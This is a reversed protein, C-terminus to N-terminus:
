LQYHKRQRKLYHLVMENQHELEVFIGRQLPHNLYPMRRIYVSQGPEIATERYAYITTGEVVADRITRLPVPSRPCLWGLAPSYFGPMSVGSLRWPRPIDEVGRHTSFFTQFLWRTLEAQIADSTLNHELRQQIVRPFETAIKDIVPLSKWRRSPLQIVDTCLYRAAQLLDAFTDDPLSSPLILQKPIGHLPWMQPVSYARPHWIADLLAIGYETATPKGESIWGGMPLGSPLDVVVCAYWSGNLTRPVNIRQSVIVWESHILPATIFLTSRQRVLSISESQGAHWYAKKKLRRMIVTFVQQTLPSIGFYNCQQNALQRARSWSLVGDPHGVKLLHLYEIIREDICQLWVGQKLLGFPGYAIFNRIRDRAAALSLGTLQVFHDVFKDQITPPRPESSCVREPAKPLLDRRRRYKRMRIKNIASHGFKFRRDCRRRFLNGLRDEILRVIPFSYGSKESAIRLQDVLGAIEEQADSHLGALQRKLTDRIAAQVSAIRIHVDQLVEVVGHLGNISLQEALAMSQSLSLDLFQAVSAAISQKHLDEFTTLFRLREQGSPPEKLLFQRWCGAQTFAMYLAMLTKLLRPRLVAVTQKPLVDLAQQKHLWRLAILFEDLCPFSSHKLLSLPGITLYSVVLSRAIRASREPMDSLTRVVTAVTRSDRCVGSKQLQETLIAQTSSQTLILNLKGWVSDWEPRRFRRTQPHMLDFTGHRYLERSVIPSILDPLGLSQALVFYRTWADPLRGPDSDIPPSLASIFADVLSQRQEITTRWAEDLWYLEHKPVFTM